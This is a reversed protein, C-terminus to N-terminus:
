ANLIYELQMEGWGKLMRNNCKLNQQKMKSLTLFLSM